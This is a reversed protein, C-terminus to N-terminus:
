FCLYDELIANVKIFVNEQDTWNYSNNSFPSTLILTLTLSPGTQSWSLSEKQLKVIDM